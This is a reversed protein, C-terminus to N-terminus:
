SIKFFFSTKVYCVTQVALQCSVDHQLNGYCTIFVGTVESRDTEFKFESQGWECKMNRRTLWSPRQAELKSALSSQKVNCHSVCRQIYKM